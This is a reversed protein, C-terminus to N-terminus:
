KFPNPFFRDDFPWLDDSDDGQCVYMGGLVFVMRGLPWCAYEDTGPRQEGSYHMVRVKSERIAEARASDAYAKALARDNKLTTEIMAIRDLLVETTKSFLEQTSRLEAELCAAYAEVASLSSGDRYCQGAWSQAASLVIFASALLPRIRNLGSVTPRWIDEKTVRSSDRLLSPM